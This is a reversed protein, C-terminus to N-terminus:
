WGADERLRLVWMYPKESTLAYAQFSRFGQLALYIWQMEVNHQGTHPPFDCKEMPLQKAGNISGSRQM